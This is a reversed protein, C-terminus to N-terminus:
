RLRTVYDDYEDKWRKEARDAYYEDIWVEEIRAFTKNSQYNLEDVLYCCVTEYDSGDFPKDDFIDIVYKQIKKGGDLTWVKDFLKITETYQSPHTIYESYKM